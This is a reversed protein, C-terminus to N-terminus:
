PTDYTSTPGPSGTGAPIFFTATRVSALPAWRSSALTGSAAFNVKAAGREWASTTEVRCGLSALYVNVTRTFLGVSSTRRIVSTGPQCTVAFFTTREGDM